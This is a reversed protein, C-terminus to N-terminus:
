PQDAILTQCAAILHARNAASLSGQERVLTNLDATLKRSNRSGPRANILGVTIKVLEDLLLPDVTFGREQAEHRLFDYVDLPASIRGEGRRTRSTKFIDSLKTAAIKDRFSKIFDEVAKCFVQAGSSGESYNSEEHNKPTERSDAQQVRVVPPDSEILSCRLGYGRPQQRAVILKYCFGTPAETENSVDLIITLDMSYERTVDSEHNVRGIITLSKRNRLTLRVLLDPDRFPGDTTVDKPPTRSGGGDEPNWVRGTDVRRPTAFTGM